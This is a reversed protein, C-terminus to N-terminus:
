TEEESTKSDKASSNEIPIIHQIRSEQQLKHTKHVVM